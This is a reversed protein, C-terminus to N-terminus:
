WRLLLMECAFGPGLALMLGTDGPAPRSSMIDSLMFLVSASSLNGFRRMSERAVRVAEEPLGFASRYTSMVKPGGPHLVYHTVDGVSTDHGALFDQVEPAAQTSVFAPIDRSLVLRMGDSTFNWGMLHQAEPFLRTRAGLINIGDTGHDDGALLVAAAGDGFLAVGVLDTATMAHRSFVLSCIEVSVVLARSTPSNALVDRARTLAGAGGACGLGFLPWRRVTPRMGLRAALLADLSPTALGTTTVFFLHDIDEARTSAAALCSRAAQEALELGRAVYQRNREEFGRPELYWEPPHVLYRTEVGSRDFVPVLREIDPHGQALRAMEVRAHAQDLRHPPVATAM